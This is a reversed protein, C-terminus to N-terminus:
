MVAHLILILVVTVGIVIALMLFWGLVLAAGALGLGVLWLPYAAPERRAVSILALAATAIAGPVSLHWDPTAWVRPQAVAVVVFATLGLLAAATGAPRRALWAWRSAASAVGPRLHAPRTLPVDETGPTVV